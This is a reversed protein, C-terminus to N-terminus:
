KAAPKRALHLAFGLFDGKIYAARLKGDEGYLLGEPEFEYGLRLFYKMARELTATAIGIHGHAGFYKKEMLELMGGVFVSGSGLRTDQGFLGCLLEAGARAEEPSGCNIGVHALSFDFMAFMAARALGAIEDFRGAAILEAPAAFSGGVALVRENAAYASLNELTVGGTPVFKVARYPAALARLMPLGGLQEAPFFKVASIGYHLAQEIETPTACGPMVPVERSLCYEVVAPNIGPSVVFKAGADIADHAQKPTLVTGAGVLFGPLEAAIARIADAAADTRFTIEAVPLGGESLARALPVADNARELTVVPIIGYEYIKEFVADM